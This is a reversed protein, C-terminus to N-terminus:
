YDFKNNIIIDFYLIKFKLAIIHLSYTTMEKTFRSLLVVTESM